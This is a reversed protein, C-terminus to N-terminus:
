RAPAPPPRASRDARAQRAADERPSEHPGIGRLHPEIRLQRQALEERLAGLSPAPMGVTAGSVMSPLRAPDHGSRTGNRRSAIRCGAAQARRRSRRRQRASSRRGPQVEAGSRCRGDHRLAGCCGSPTLTAGADHWGHVGPRCFACSPRQPDLSDRLPCHQSDACDSSPLRTSRRSALPSRKTRVARRAITSFVPLAPASVSVM